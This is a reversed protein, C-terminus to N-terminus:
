PKKNGVMIDYTNEIALLQGDSLPYGGSCSEVYKILLNGGFYLTAERSVSEYKAM